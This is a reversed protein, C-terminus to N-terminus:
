ESALIEKANKVRLTNIESILTPLLPHGALELDGELEKMTLDLLDAGKMENVEFCEIFSDLGCSLLWQTVDSSKWGSILTVAGAKSAVVEKPLNYFYEFHPSPYRASTFLYFGAFHLTLGYLLHLVHDAASDSGDFSHVIEGCCNLVFSANKGSSVGFKQRTRQQADSLLRFPLRLLQIDAALVSPDSQTIGFLQTGCISLLEYNAKMLKLISRWVGGGDRTYFVFISM